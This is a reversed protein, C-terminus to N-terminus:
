LNGKPKWIPCWFNKKAPSFLADNQVDDWDQLTPSIKIIFGSWQIMRAVEAESLMLISNRWREISNPKTFFIALKELRRQLIRVESDSEMRWTIPVVNLDHIPNLVTIIQHRSEPSSLEKWLRLGLVLKSPILAKPIKLARLMVKNKAGLPQWSDTTTRLTSWNPHKFIPPALSDSVTNQGLLIPAIRQVREHCSKLYDGQPTFIVPINEGVPAGARLWRNEPGKKPWM